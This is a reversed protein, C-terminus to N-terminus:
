NVQGNRARFFASYARYHQTDQYQIPQILEGDFSLLEAGAAAMVLPSHTAVIFQAERSRGREAL